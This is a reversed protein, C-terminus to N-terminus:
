LRKVQKCSFPLLALSGHRVQMRGYASQWSEQEEQSLPQQVREAATLPAEGPQTSVGFITQSREGSQTSAQATSLEAVQKMLSDVQSTM